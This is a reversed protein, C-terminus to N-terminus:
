VIFGTNFRLFVWGKSNRVIKEEVKSEEKNRRQIRKPHNELSRVQRNIPRHSFVDQEFCPAWLSFFPSMSEHKM